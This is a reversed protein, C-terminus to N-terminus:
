LKSSSRMCFAQISPATTPPAPANLKSKLTGPPVIGHAPTVTTPTWGVCRRRPTSVAIIRAWSSSTWSRPSGIAARQADSSRM